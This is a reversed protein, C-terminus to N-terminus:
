ECFGLFGVLFMYRCFFMVNSVLVSSLFCTSFSPCCGDNQDSLLKLIPLSLMGSNWTSYHFYCIRACDPVSFQIWVILIISIGQEFFIISIWTAGLLIFIYTCQVSVGCFCTFIGCVCFFNIALLFLGKIFIFRFMALLLSDGM